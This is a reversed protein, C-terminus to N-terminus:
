LVNGNVEDGKCDGDQCKVESANVFTAESYESNSWATIKASANFNPAFVRLQFSLGPSSGSYPCGTSLSIRKM